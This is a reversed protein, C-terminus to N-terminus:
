VICKTADTSPTAGATASDGQTIPRATFNETSVKSVQLKRISRNDNFLLLERCVGDSICDTRHYSSTVTYDHLVPQQLRFCAASIVEFVLPDFVTSLSRTSLRITSHIGQKPFWLVLISLLHIYSGGSGNEEEWVLVYVYIYLFLAVDITTTNYTCWCM